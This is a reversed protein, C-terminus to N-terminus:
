AAPILLNAIGDSSRLSSCPVYDLFRRSLIVYRRDFIISEEKKREEAKDKLQAIYRSRKLMPEAKKRQAQQAQSSDLFSDYDFIGEIEAEAAAVSAAVQRWQPVHDSIGPPYM